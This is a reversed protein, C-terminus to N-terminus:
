WYFTLMFWTFGIQALMIQKLRKGQINPWVEVELLPYALVLPYMFWSLYAFRNSYSARIVMVWFANVLTYTNLLFEYKSDRIKKKYIIYYGLVIPMMSYILFDWRFGSSSFTGKEQEATLYDLRDDFGLAAFFSTVAGGAVLSIIISLIWFTYATKFSRISYLAVVSLLVPLAVTNHIFFALVALVIAMIKNLTGEEIVYSLFVLVISCALGNRIGNVGYSFFSLGGLCFLLSVLVNNPTLRKCAWLTFGFYGIDILTFFVTINYYKACYTMINYFVWEGEYSYTTHSRTMDYFRRAYNVTDGFVPNVERGGLWLAFIACILFAENFNKSGQKIRSYRLPLRSAVILTM